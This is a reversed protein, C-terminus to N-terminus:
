ETVPKNIDSAPIHDRLLEYGKDSSYAYIAPLFRSLFLAPAETMSYAGCHGFELVDDIDLHPLRVERVLVDAVTCLSGFLTYDVEEDPAKKGETAYRIPPVEMAMRQGFYNLHHIGGDLIVYNADGQTKIDKVTTFYKGCSAALFRGMEIGLPYKEAFEKLVTAAEDLAAKEKEEWDPEFYYVCLGPGYEILEPKFGYKEDLISIASEIKDLDKKIKRLSKQTGSYYHLGIVSIGKFEDPNSIIYEIDTLSMGFQNGSSLRLIVDVKKGQALAVKSELQAHRISECTLIGAGYTIARTIDTEEKMVGSYIISSPDIGLAICIELEGPSCVEVRDIGEPIRHLLFPNAKISFCLHINGLAAKIMAARKAFEDTDFVYYPTSNM